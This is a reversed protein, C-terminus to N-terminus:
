TLTATVTAIACAHQADCVQYGITFTGKADPEKYSLQNRGNATIVTATGLKTGSGAPGSVITLSLPDLNGDPDTDNALVDITITKNKPNTVADDAARPPQNAASTSPPRTTPAATTPPVTSPLATGLTTSTRVTSPPTTTPGTSSPVTSDVPSPASSTAPAQRDTPSPAWSTTGPILAAGPGPSVAAPEGTPGIAVEPQALAPSGGLTLGAVAALVTVLQTAAAGVQVPANAMARAAPVEAIWALPGIVSRLDGLSINLFSRVLSPDFHTGACRTLEARAEEAPMGKKYSRIATMVEYADAVAVIRGARSIAHGALGNPYGTGDWREHHEGAALRWDGLWEAVPESLPLGAAPHGRLADWEQRTPRGPKNLIAPDVTIKGIDHLLAAWRLKDLEAPPLHLERGLLEAFARVRESHGRTRRDHANLAAVLALVEGAGRVAASSVGAARAEEVRRKLARTSGALQATALRSPARDPFVLTMALLSRLPVLRRCAAQILASATLSAALMSAWWLSRFSGDPPEPVLSGASVAVGLGGLVPALM